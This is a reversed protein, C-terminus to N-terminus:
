KWNERSFQDLMEIEIRVNKAWRLQRESLSGHITHRDYERDFRNSEELIKSVALNYENVDRVGMQRYESIKKRAKRAYLEAIDFHLQEHDLLEQSKSRCWSEDPIFYAEVNYFLRKKYYYPRATIHIATAADAGSFTNIDGRFDSWSLKREESWPLYGDTSFNITTWASSLTLLLACILILPRKM